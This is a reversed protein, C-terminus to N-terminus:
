AKDPRELATTLLDTIHDMGVKVTGFHAEVKAFNEDVKGFREDVRAFREDVRAFRAEVKAFGNRMERGQEVQTERLAQLSKTHSRLEIRMDAVDRDAGGALIRAAAADKRAEAVEHELNTVREPINDPESM